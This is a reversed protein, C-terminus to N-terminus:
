AEYRVQAIRGEIEICDETFSTLILDVGDIHICKENKEIMIHERTYQVIRTYNEVCCYLDGTLKIQPQELINVRNLISNYLM